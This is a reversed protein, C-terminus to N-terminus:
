PESLKKAKNFDRRKRGSFASTHPASLRKIEDWDEPVFWAAHPRVIVKEVILGQASLAQVHQEADAL